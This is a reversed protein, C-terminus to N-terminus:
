LANTQVQLESGGLLASSLGTVAGLKKLSKSSKKM